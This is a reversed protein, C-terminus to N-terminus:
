KVGFNFLDSKGDPYIIIVKKNTKKGFRITAWTGSRLQETDQQPTGILLDCGDVIDHNRDIYWKEPLIIDGKCFARKSKINPPHIIIKLKLEACINHFDSDAGVCDGHRVLEINNKLLFSKVKEKQIETMGIQTGTFGIIM